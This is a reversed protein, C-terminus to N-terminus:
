ANLVDALNDGSTNHRCKRHCYRLQVVNAFSVDAQVFAPTDNIGDGVMAVIKGEQKFKEVVKLKDQPLVQAFVNNEIM